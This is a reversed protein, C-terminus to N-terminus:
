LCLQQQKTVLDDSEAIGHATAQWAGQDMLNGLCSYQFPTDNGKGAFRGSGPILCADGSNDPLNKVVASGPFGMSM